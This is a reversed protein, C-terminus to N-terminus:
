LMCRNRELEHLVYFWMEKAMQPDKKELDEWSKAAAFIIGLAVCVLAAIVLIVCIVKISLYIFMAIIVLAAVAAILYKKM